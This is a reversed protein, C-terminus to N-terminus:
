VPSSCGATKTTAILFYYYSKFSWVPLLIIIKVPTIYIWADLPELRRATLWHADENGATNSDIVSLQQRSHRRVTSMPQWPSTDLNPTRRSQPWQLAGNLDNSTLLVQGGKRGGEPTQKSPIEALTDCIRRSWYSILLMLQTLDVRAPGTESIDGPYFLM